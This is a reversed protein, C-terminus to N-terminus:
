EGWPRHVKVGVKPHFLSQPPAYPNDRFSHPQQNLPFSFAPARELGGEFFGIEGHRQPKGM